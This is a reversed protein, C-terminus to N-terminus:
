ESQTSRKRRVYLFLGIFAGIWLLLLAILPAWVSPIIMLVIGLLVLMIVWGIIFQIM